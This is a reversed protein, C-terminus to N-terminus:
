VLLNVLEAARRKVAEFDSVDAVNVAKETNAASDGARKSVLTEVARKNGSCGCGGEVDFAFAANVVEEAADLYFVVGRGAPEFREAKRHAADGDIRIM